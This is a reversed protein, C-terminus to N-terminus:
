EWLHFEQKIEGVMLEVSKQERINGFARANRQKWITWTTCNVMSDFRRMDCRRVRKRAETWWRQLNGVFGPDAIQLESSYLVRCWVQRSYPCLTLIHDVNDEEQLCTYCADPRDQLGHRARRDSTWLRYRLALWAFMKGKMPSFSGWVPKSMSWRVSGTCLMKYTDRASYVGSSAGKWEIRDASLVDREVTEVAEWLRMCQTWLEVTMEGQIDDSAPHGKSVEAELGVLAAGDIM